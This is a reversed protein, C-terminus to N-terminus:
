NKRNKKETSAEPKVNTYESFGEFPYERTFVSNDHYPVPDINTLSLIILLVLIFGLVILQIQQNM